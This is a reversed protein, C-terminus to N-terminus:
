AVTEYLSAQYGCFTRNPMCGYKAIVQVIIPHDHDPPQTRTMTIPQNHDHPTVCSSMAGIESVRVRAGTAFCDRLSPMQYGPTSSPQSTKLLFRGLWASGWTCQFSCLTPSCTIMGVCPPEGLGCRSLKELTNVRDSCHEDSIAIPWHLSRTPNRTARPYCVTASGRGAAPEELVTLFCELLLWMVAM